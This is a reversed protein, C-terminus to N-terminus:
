EAAKGAQPGGGGADDDGSRGEPTEVLGSSPTEQLNLVDGAPTTAREGKDRSAGQQQEQSTRRQAQQAQQAE